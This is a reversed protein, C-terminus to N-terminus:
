FVWNQAEFKGQCHGCCQRLLRKKERTEAEIMAIRMLHEATAVNMSQGPETYGCRELAQKIFDNEQETLPTPTM